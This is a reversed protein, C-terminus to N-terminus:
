GCNQFDFDRHSHRPVRSLEAKSWTQKRSLCVEPPLLGDSFCNPGQWTWSCSLSHGLSSLHALGPSPQEATTLTQTLAVTASIERENWFCLCWSNLLYIVFSLILTILLHTQVKFIKFFYTLSPPFHSPCWHLLLSRLENPFFVITSMLVLSFTVCFAQIQPGTHPFVTNRGQLCPCHSSSSPCHDMPMYVHSCVCLCM